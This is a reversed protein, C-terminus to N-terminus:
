AGPLLARCMHPALGRSDGHVALLQQDFPPEQHDLTSLCLQLAAAKLQLAPTSNLITNQSFTNGFSSYPRKQIGGLMFQVSHGASMFRLLLQVPGGADQTSAIVGSERHTNCCCLGWM